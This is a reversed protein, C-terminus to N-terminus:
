TYLCVHGFSTGLARRSNTTLIRVSQKDRSLLDPLTRTKTFVCCAELSLPQLTKSFTQLFFHLRVKSKRGHKTWFVRENCINHLCYILNGHLKTMCDMWLMFYVPTNNQIFLIAHTWYRKRLFFGMFVKILDFIHAYKTWTANKGM